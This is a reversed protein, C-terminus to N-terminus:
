SLSYLTDHYFYQDRLVLLRNGIQDAHIQFLSTIGAFASIVSLFRSVPHLFSMIIQEEQINHQRLDITVLEHFISLANLKRDDKNSSHVGRFILYLTQLHSCFVIQRLRKLNHFKQCSHFRDQAATVLNATHQM